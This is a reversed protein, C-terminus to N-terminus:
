DFTHALYSSTAICHYARAPCEGDIVKWLTLHVTIGNEMCTTLIKVYAIWAEDYTDFEPDVHERNDEIAIRYM